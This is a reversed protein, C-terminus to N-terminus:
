LPAGSVLVLKGNKVAFQWNCYLKDSPSKGSNWSKIENNYAAAKSSESAKGVGKKTSASSVDTVTSSSDVVCGVAAKGGCTLSYCNNAGSVTGSFSVGIMTGKFVGGFPCFTAWGSKKFSCNKLILNRVVADATTDWFFGGRTSNINRITHGNGNFDGSFAKNYDISSSLVKWETGSYDLDALLIYSASKPDVMSGDEAVIKDGGAMADAFYSMDGISRIKFPDAPTGTGKLSTSVAVYQPCGDQKDCAKKKEVTSYVTKCNPCVTSVEEIAANIENETPYVVTYPVTLQTTGHASQEWGEKTYIFSGFHDAAETMMGYKSLGLIILDNAIVTDSYGNATKTKITMTYTPISKKPGDYALYRGSQKYQGENKKLTIYTGETWLSSATQRGTLANYCYTPSSITSPNSSTNWQVDKVYYFCSDDLTGSYEGINAPAAPTAPTVPTVPTVTVIEQKKVEPKKEEVVVVVPEQVVPEVVVPESKVTTTTRETKEVEGCLLTNHCSKVQEPSDYLTGCFMCYNPNNLLEPSPLACGAVGILLAVMVFLFLIGNQRRKM